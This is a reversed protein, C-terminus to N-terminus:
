DISKRQSVKKLQQWFGGFLRGGSKFSGRTFYRKLLRSDLDYNHKDKEMLLCWTTLIQM